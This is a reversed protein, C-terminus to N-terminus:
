NQKYDLLIKNAKLSITFDKSNFEGKKKATLYYKKLINETGKFQNKLNSIKLKYICKPTKFNGNNDYSDRSYYIRLEDNFYNLLGNTFVLKISNIYTSAYTMFISSKIKSNLEFIIEATDYSSTKAFNYKFINHIKVKKFYKLFFHLYHIGVNGVLGNFLNNKKFRWNNKFNKKFAIGNGIAVSLKILNGLIPKDLTEAIKKYIPTYPLQFNFM